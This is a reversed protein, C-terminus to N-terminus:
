YTVAIDDEVESVGPAASAAAVAQNREAWSHVSGSLVVKTGDVNVTINDADIVANRELAQEINQKVAAPAVDPVVKIQNTIGAVGELYRVVDEAANKDYLRVAEGSLTVWGNEVTVSIGDPAWVHTKLAAVVFQAIEADTHVNRHKITIDEAVAKVGVVRRAAEEASKKEAYNPVNGTLTVVGNIVSVGIDSTTVEPAWRLEEYVDKQLELDSKNNM